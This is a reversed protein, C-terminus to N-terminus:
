GPRGAGVAALPRPSRLRLQLLPQEVWRLSAAAALLSVPVVVLTMELLHGGFVPLGLLQCTLELVVLHLLFVGYSRQGVWVVPRSRLLARGLGRGQDGFVCPLLLLGAIAAYLYEKLGVEWRGVAGLSLPGAVPTTALVFLALAAGWCTGTADAVADLGVLRWRGPPSSEQWARAAALALGVAFWDAHAPLWLGAVREDVVTGRLVADWVVPVLALTGAALLERQLRARPTAGGLRACLGGWAPLLAYFAVETCLSWTQSLGRVEHGSGYVHTLTLQRVWEVASDRPGANVGLLLLALVVAVWYAPLVRLARRRVYRALPPPADGRLHALARPRHLLFGSLVFFVAVGVDLRALAASGPGALGAGSQFGLHTGLVALAALARLGDLCPFRGDDAPTGAASELGAGAPEPTPGPAPGPTLGPTTRVSM